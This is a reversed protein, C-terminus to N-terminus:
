ILLNLKEFIRRVPPLYFYCYIPINIKFICGCFVLLLYKFRKQPYISHTYGSIYKGNFDRCYDPYNKPRLNQVVLGIKSIKRM